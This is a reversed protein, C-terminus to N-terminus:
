HPNWEGFRVARSVVEKQCPRIVGGPLIAGFRRPRNAVTMGADSGVSPKEYGGTRESFVGVVVRDLKEIGVSTNRFKGSVSGSARGGEQNIDAEGGIRDANQGAGAYLM